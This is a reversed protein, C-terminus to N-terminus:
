KEADQAVIGRQIHCWRQSLMEQRPDLKDEPVQFRVGGGAAPQGGPSVWSVSRLRLVIEQWSERAPGSWRPSQLQAQGCEGTDIRIRDPQRPRGPRFSLGATRIEPFAACPRSAEKSTQVTTRKGPRSPTQM